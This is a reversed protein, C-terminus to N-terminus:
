IYSHRYAVSFTGGGTLSITNDGPLLDWWRSGAVILDDVNGDASHTATRNTMDLTLTQGGTLVTTVEVYRSDDTSNTIRPNTSAGTITVTAAARVNGANNVPSSSDAQATTGVKRWDPAILPIEFELASMNGRYPRMRPRSQLKVTVQKPTPENVVLTGTGGVLNTAAALTNFAYWYETTYPYVVDPKTAIGALVIARGNHRWEGLVQGDQGAPTLIDGRVDPPEWGDLRTWSWMIGNSDESDCDFTIGGLTIATCTM